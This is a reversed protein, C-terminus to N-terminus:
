HKSGALRSEVYARIMNMHAIAERGQDGWVLEIELRAKASGLFASFTMGVRCAQVLDKYRVDGQGCMVSRGGPDVIVYPLYSGDDHALCLLHHRPEDKYTVMFVVVDQPDGGSVEVDGDDLKIVSVVDEAEDAMIKLLRHARLVDKM